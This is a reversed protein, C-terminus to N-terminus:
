PGTIARRTRIDAVIRGDARRLQMWDHQSNPERADFRRALCLLVLHEGVNINGHFVMERERVQETSGLLGMQWAARDALAQFSAFYLLGAGNFDQRPDPRLTIQAVEHLLASDPFVSEWGGARATREAEMAAQVWAVQAPSRSTRPGAMPARVISRNDGSRERCVFVSMMELRALTQGDAQFTQQTAVRSRGAAQCAISTRLSQDERATELRASHLHVRTFAAYVRRGELDTLDGPRQGRARALAQWHHDGAAKLLWNESLGLADLQPMGLTVAPAMFVEHALAGGVEVLDLRRRTSEPRPM